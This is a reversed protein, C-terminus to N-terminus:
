AGPIKNRCGFCQFGGWVPWIHSDCNPCRRTEIAEALSASSPVTPGPVALPDDPLIAPPLDHPPKYKSGKGKRPVQVERTPSNDRRQREVMPGSYEGPEYDRRVREIRV